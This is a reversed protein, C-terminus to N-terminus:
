LFYESILKYSYVSLHSTKKFSINKSHSLIKSNSSFQDLKESIIISLIWLIKQNDFCATKFSLFFIFLLINASIAALSWFSVSSAITKKALLANTKVFDLFRQKAQPTANFINAFLAINLVMVMLIINKM